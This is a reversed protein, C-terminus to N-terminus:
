KQQLFHQIKLNQLLVCSVFVVPNIVDPQFMIMIHQLQTVFDWRIGITALIM